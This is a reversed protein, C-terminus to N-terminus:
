FSPTSTGCACFGTWSPRSSRRMTRKPIVIEGAIPAVEDCFATAWTSEISRGAALASAEWPSRLNLEPYGERWQHGVHIVTMRAERAAALARRANAM